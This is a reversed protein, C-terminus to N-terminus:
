KKRKFGHIAVAAILIALEMLITAIVGCFFPPIYM